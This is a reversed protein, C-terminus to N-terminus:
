PHFVDVGAVPCCSCSCDGRVGDRVPTTSVRTALLTEAEKMKRRYAPLGGAVSYGALLCELRSLDVGDGKKEGHFGFGFAAHAAAPPPGM